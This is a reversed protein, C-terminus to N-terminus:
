ALYPQLNAYNVFSFFRKLVFFVNSVEQFIMFSQLTRNWSGGSNKEKLIKVDLDLAYVKIIQSINYFNM